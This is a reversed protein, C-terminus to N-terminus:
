CKITEEFYYTNFKKYDKRRRPDMKSNSPALNSMLGAKQAMTVM